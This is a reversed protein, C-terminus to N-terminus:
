GPLGRRAALANEYDARNDLDNANRAEPNAVSPESGHKVLPPWAQYTTARGRLRLTLQRGVGSSLSPNRRWRNAHIPILSYELLEFFAQDVLFAQLDLWNTLRCQQDPLEQRRFKIWRGEAEDDRSSFLYLVRRLPDSATADWLADARELLDEEFEVDDHLFLARAPRYHRALLFATQYVQWFQAKGFRERADLWLQTGAVSPALRRAATYDQQCADHLVLLLSRESLGRAALARKVRQLQSLCPGPRDYTNIVVLLEPQIPPVPLAESVPGPHHGNTWGALASGLPLPQARPRNRRTAWELTLERPHFAPLM